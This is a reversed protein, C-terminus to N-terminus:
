VLSAAAGRRGILQLIAQRLDLSRQVVHWLSSCGYQRKVANTDSSLIPARHAAGSKESVWFRPCDKCPPTRHLLTLLECCLELAFRNSQELCAISRSRHHCPLQAFGLDSHGKGTAKRRMRRRRVASRAPVRRGDLSHESRRAFGTRGMLMSAICMDASSTWRTRAQRRWSWPVTSGSVNRRTAPYRCNPRKELISLFELQM